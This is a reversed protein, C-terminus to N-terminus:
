KQQDCKDGSKSRSHAASRLELIKSVFEDLDQMVLLTPWFKDRKFLHVEGGPVWKM